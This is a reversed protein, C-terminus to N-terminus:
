LIGGLRVWLQSTPEGSALQYTGVQSEFRGATMVYPASINVDTGAVIPEFGGYSKDPLPLWLTQASVGCAQLILGTSDTATGGTGVCLGSAVGDPAYQYEYMDYTPWEEALPAAIIGYDYYETTTAASSLVFDEGVHEGKEALTVVSGQADGTSNLVLDPSYEYVM